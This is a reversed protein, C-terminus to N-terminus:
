DRLFKEAARRAGSYTRYAASCTRCGRFWMAPSDQDSPDSPSMYGVWVHFCGDYHSIIAKRCNCTLEVSGSGLVSTAIKATNAKRAVALLELDDM